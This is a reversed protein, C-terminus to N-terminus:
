RKRSWPKGLAIQIKEVSDRQNKPSKAGMARTIMLGLQNRERRPSHSTFTMLPLGLL